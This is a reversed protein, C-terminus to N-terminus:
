PTSRLPWTGRSDDERIRECSKDYKLCKNKAVIKRSSRGQRQRRSGGGLAVKIATTLEGVSFPKTVYAKAGVELSKQVYELGGQVTMMIVGCRPYSSNILQCATIGDMEPMNIDMLVIDPELNKVQELAILGNSAEGVVRFEDNLSLLRRVNDRTEAIDDVILIRTAM